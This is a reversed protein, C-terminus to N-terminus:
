VAVGGEVTPGAGKAKASKSRSQYAALQDEFSLAVTPPAAAAAAAPDKKKKIKKRKGIKMGGRRKARRAMVEFISALPFHAFTCYEVSCRGTTAFDFCYEQDYKQTSEQVLTGGTNDDYKLDVVTFLPRKKDTQKIHVQL